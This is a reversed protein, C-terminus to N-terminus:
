EISEPVHGLRRLAKSFFDDSGFNGSKFTMTLQRTADAEAEAAPDGPAAARIPRMVPVGPDLVDVIELADIDLGEAVAGSTEGGAVVIHRVLGDAVARSALERHAAEIQRSLTERSSGKEMIAEGIRKRDAANASSYALAWGADTVAGYVMGYLRDVESPFDDILGLVDIMVGPGFTRQLAAIQQLSVVSCSGSLILVGGGEDREISPPEGSVPLGKRAWVQALAGGLGSGGTVLPFDVVADAIAILDEDTLVDVLAVATGGEALERMSRRITAAGGRVRDYPILGVRGTMQAQLHRVLNSDTMPHIPHDRMHTESLLRDGVFLHGLYQTRGNVPLAPVAVTFPVEMAEMLASTVPGINGEASSDFTSCYKFYIQRAGRQRLVELAELSRTCAENAPTSRTKLAVVLAQFDGGVTTVAAADLCLATRAGGSSLMSALDAAGTFDDAIAGLLLTDTMPGTM